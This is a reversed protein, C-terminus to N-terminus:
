RGSHGNGEDPFVCGREGDEGRGVLMHSTSDCHEGHAGVVSMGLGQMDVPLSGVQGRKEKFGYGGRTSGGWGWADYTSGDESGSSEVGVEEGEKMVVEVRGGLVM